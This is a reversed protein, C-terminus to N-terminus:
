AAALRLTAALDAARGAPLLADYSFPVRRTRAVADGTANAALPTAPSITVRGRRDRHSRTGTARNIQKVVREVERWDVRVYGAKWRTPRAAELLGVLLQALEAPEAVM